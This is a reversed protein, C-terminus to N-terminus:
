ALAILGFTDTSMASIPARADRWANSAPLRAGGALHEYVLASDLAITLLKGQVTGPSETLNIRTEVCIRRGTQLESSLVLVPRSLIRGCATWAVKEIGGKREELDGDDVPIM